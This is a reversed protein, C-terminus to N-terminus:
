SGNEQKIPLTFSFTSGKNEGESEGWIKGGHAEIFTKAVFLGFGSGEVRERMPGKGGRRFKEFMIQIEEPTLGRGSDRVSFVVEKEQKKLSCAVGGKETYKIANDILNIIVQRIKESDIKLLPLPEEPSQFVLSLGKAEAKPRFEEIVGQILEILNTPSFSYEIRGMEIRSINLFDNVLNILRENSEFIKQLAYVQKEGLSGFTGDLLAAIGLKIVTLPSRLQHAAISLFDTKARDLEKLKENAEALEKSIREIEERRRIELYISRILMFGVVIIFVFFVLRSFLELTSKAGFIQTISILTVFITLAEATFIKVNFINHRIIAYTIFIILFIISFIGLRFIEPSVVNQFFLNIVLIIIASLGFGILVLIAKSREEGRQLIARKLIHIIGIGCYLFLYVTYLWYLPGPSYILQHQNDFRVDTIVLEFLPLTAFIISPILFVISKKVWKVRTFHLCFYSFTYVLIAGLVFDSYIFFKALYINKVVTEAYNSIMWPLLILIFVIFARNVQEHPGHLYVLFGLICIFIAIALFIYFDLGIM